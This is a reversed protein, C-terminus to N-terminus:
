CFRDDEDEAAFWTKITKKFLVYVILYAGVAILTCWVGTMLNDEGFFGLACVISASACSVAVILSIILFLIGNRNVIDDQLVCRCSVM